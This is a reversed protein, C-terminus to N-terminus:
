ASQEAMALAERHIAERLEPPELPVAAAGWGLLWPVFESLQEVHYIMVVDDSGPVAEERRYGYHQRERVWRVKAGGFRVCLEIPRWDKSPPPAERKGFKERSLRLSEMRNIRFGRFDQRLRCYGHVYWNGGQYYLRQPEFDRETTEDQSLSHYRLHVVRQERIAQQLAALNPEYLDFRQGPAFFHIFETLQFVEVRMHEPLVIAIKALAQEADFAVQGKTHALMMQCGLFLATAEAPTFLLPPIFYGQMLEYGEGPTGLLPVGSECLAEIDRYITRESVEFAQALDQARAHRKRQLLLLIAFLRDVRNM